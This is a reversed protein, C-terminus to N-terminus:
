QDKWEIKEHKRSYSLKDPELLQLLVDCDLMMTCLLLLLVWRGSRLEELLEHVNDLM